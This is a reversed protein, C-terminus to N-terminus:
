ITPFQTVKSILTPVFLIIQHNSNAKTIIKLPIATQITKMSIKPPNTIITLNIIIIKIVGLTLIIKLITKQTNLIKKIGEPFNDIKPLVVPINNTKPTKEIIQDIMKIIKELLIQLLSIPNM